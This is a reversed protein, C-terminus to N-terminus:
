IQRKAKVLAVIDDRLSIARTRPTGSLEITEDGRLDDGTDTTMKFGVTAFVKVTGNETVRFVRYEEVQIDTVTIVRPM